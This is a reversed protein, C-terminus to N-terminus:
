GLATCTALNKNQKKFFVLLYFISFLFRSNTKWSFSATLSYFHLQYLTLHTHKHTKKFLFFVSLYFLILISLALTLPDFLSPLSTNKATEQLHSAARISNPLDNWWNPVTLSFTQSLSKTGRQSPVIIHRESASLLSRSPVYTQLVSNLYLPASGSTTKYAFMLAKFKIRAAIPLWHLNIFLPTVHM